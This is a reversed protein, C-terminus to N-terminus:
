FHLRRFVGELIGAIMHSSGKATELVQSHTLPEERRGPYTNTILALCAVRLGFYRAIIVEPVTSMTVADAGLRRLTEIEASTEYTPGKVAALVGVKLSVGLSRAVERIIICIGEDYPRAMDVFREMGAAGIGRLPNSMSLDIHDQVLMLDGADLWPTVAGAACTYIICKVGLSRALLSPLAIEGATTGEYCHVRGQFVVANHEGIRGYHLMGAHGATSPVPMYPIEGYPISCGRKILSSSVDFGSGLVVGIDAKGVGRERLWKASSNATRALDALGHSKAARHPIFSILGTYSRM